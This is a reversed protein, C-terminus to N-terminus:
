ERLIKGNKLQLMDCARLCMGVDASRNLARETTCVDCGILFNADEGATATTSHSLLFFTM